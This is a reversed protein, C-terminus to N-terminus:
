ILSSHFFSLFDIFSQSYQMTLFISLNLNLIDLTRKATISLWLRKPIVPVEVLVTVIDVTPFLAGYAVQTHCKGTSIITLNNANTLNDFQQTVFEM